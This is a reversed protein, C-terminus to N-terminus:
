VDMCLLPQPLLLVCCVFVCDLNFEQILLLLDLPCMRLAIRRTPWWLHTKGHRTNPATTATISPGDTECCFSTHVLSPYFSVLLSNCSCAVALWFLFCQGHISASMCLMPDRVCHRFGPVISIYESKFRLVIIVM